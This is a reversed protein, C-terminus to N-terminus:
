KESTITKTTLGPIRGIKGALANIVDSPADLAVSIVNVERKKYPIGMRGIIYESYDHLVRNLDDTANWDRVLIGILAIKTEM